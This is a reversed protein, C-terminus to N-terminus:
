TFSQIAAVPGFIEDNVCDATEPVNSLVTPPYFYGKGNPCHAASSWSRARPWRM